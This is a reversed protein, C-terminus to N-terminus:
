AFGCCGVLVVGTQREPEEESRLFPQLEGHFYQEVFRIVNSENMEERFMYKKNKGNEYGLLGITPVQWERVGFYDLLRPNEAPIHLIVLRGRYRGAIRELFSRYEMVKQDPNSEAAFFLIFLSMDLDKSFVKKSFFPTYPVILPLEEVLVWRRIADITYDGSYVVSDGSPKYMVISPFPVNMTKAVKPNHVIRRTVNMMEHIAEDVANQIVRASEPIFVILALSSSAITKKVVEVEEKALSDEMEERSHFYSDRAFSVLERTMVSLLSRSETTHRGPYSIPNQKKFYMLTPVGKLKLLRGIRPNEIVDIEAFVLQPCEKELQLAAEAFHPALKQCFM